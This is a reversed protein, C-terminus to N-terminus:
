MGISLKNYTSYMESRKYKVLPMIMKDYKSNFDMYAEQKNPYVIVYGDDFMLPKNDKQIIVFRHKM